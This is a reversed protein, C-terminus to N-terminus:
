PLKCSLGRSQGDKISKSSARKSKFLFALTLIGAIKKAAATIFKLASNSNKQSKDTGNGIGHQFKEDERRRQSSHPRHPSPTPNRKM